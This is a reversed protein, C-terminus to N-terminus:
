STRVIRSRRMGPRKKLTLRHRGFFRWITSLGFPESREAMLRERVEALTLDPTTEVLELIFGAHREIRESRRDGGVKRPAPTGNAQALKVWRIATAIGVEFREAAQRRSMGGNVAAVVRERLDLSLVKVM